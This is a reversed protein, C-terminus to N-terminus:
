KAAQRAQASANAIIEAGAAIANNVPTKITDGVTNITKEGTEAYLSLWGRSIKAMGDFYNRAINVSAEQVDLGVNVVNRFYSGAMEVTKIASDFVVNAADQSLEMACNVNDVTQEAAQGTAKTGKKM